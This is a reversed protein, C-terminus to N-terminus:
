KDAKAKYFGKLLDLSDVATKLDRDIAGRLDSQEPFDKSFQDGLKRIHEQISEIEEIRKKSSSVKSQQKM